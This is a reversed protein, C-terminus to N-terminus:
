GRNELMGFCWNVLSLVIGFFLASWFSDIHFGPVFFGALLIMVTNIVLAFLGLTLLTIPLTLLILIPKVLTNLIGLVVAVLVATLYGSVRVGPVLYATIYVALGSILLRIILKM